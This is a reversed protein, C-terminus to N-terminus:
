PISTKIIEDLDVRPFIDLKGGRSANFVKVTSQKTYNLVAEFALKHRNLNPPFYKEGIKDYDPHFHNTHLGDSVHISDGSEQDRHVTYDLDVGLLYIESAGMYCALQICTYTVTSGWYIGLLANESFRPHEPVEYFKKKILLFTIANPLQRLIGPKSPLLKKMNDPLVTKLYELKSLMLPDESCYFKPRWKTDPFCLYIKNTGITLEKELKELDSVTLSPGNGIVFIRKGKYLGQLQLLERENQSIPALYLAVFGLVKTLPRFVAKIYVKGLIRASRPSINALLSQAKRMLKHM